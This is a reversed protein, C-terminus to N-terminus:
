GVGLTSESTHEWKGSVEDKRETERMGLDERKKHKSIKTQKGRDEGRLEGEERENLRKSM